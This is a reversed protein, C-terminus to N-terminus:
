GSGLLNVSHSIYFIDKNNECLVLPSHDPAKIVGTGIRGEAEFLKYPFTKSDFFGSALSTYQFILGNLTHRTGFLRYDEVKELRPKSDYSHIKERHFFKDEISLKLPVAFMDGQREAKTDQIKELFKIENPKFSNYFEKEGYKLYMLGSDDRVETLFVEGEDVGGFWYESFVYGKGNDRGIQFLFQEGNQLPYFRSSPTTPFTITKGQRIPKNIEGWKYNLSAKSNEHLPLLAEIDKVMISNELMSIKKTIPKEM